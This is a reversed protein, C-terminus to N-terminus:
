KNPGSSQRERDVAGELEKYPDDKAAKLVTCSDGCVLIEGTVRNLRYVGGSVAMAEYVPQPRWYIAAGIMAAAVVIAIAVERM